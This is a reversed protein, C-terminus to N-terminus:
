GNENAEWTNGKEQKPNPKRRGDKLVPTYFEGGWKIEKLLTVGPCFDEIAKKCLELTAHGAYLTYGRKFAEPDDTLHVDLCKTFGLRNAEGANSSWPGKLVMDRGDKMKIPFSRGGYGRDPQSYAFFSVYGDLEAFYLCKKEEYRLPEHEPMKDVLLEVVPSNAFQEYWNIKCDLVKM